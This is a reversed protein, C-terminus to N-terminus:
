ERLPPLPTSLFPYPGIVDRVNRDPFTGNGKM